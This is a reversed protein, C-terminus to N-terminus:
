YKWTGTYSFASVEPWFIVLGRGVLSTDTLKSQLRPVLPAIPAGLEGRIKSIRQKQILVRNLLGFAEVRPATGRGVVFHLEATFEGKFEVQRNPLNWPLGHAPISVSRLTDRINEPLVNSNRPRPNNKHRVVREVV